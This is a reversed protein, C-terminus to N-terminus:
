YVKRLLLCLCVDSETAFAFVQGVTEQRALFSEEADNTQVAGRSSFAMQSRWLPQPEATCGKIARQLADTLACSFELPLLPENVQSVHDM